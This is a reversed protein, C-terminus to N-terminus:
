GVKANNAADLIGPYFSQDAMRDVWIDLCFTDDDVMRMRNLTNVSEVLDVPSNRTLMIM